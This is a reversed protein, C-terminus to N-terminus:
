RGSSRIAPRPREISARGAFGGAPPGSRHRAGPRPARPTPSRRETRQPTVRGAISPQANMSPCFPGDRLRREASASRRRCAPHDLTHGGRRHHRRAFWPPLSRSPMPPGALTRGSSATRRCAKPLRRSSRRVPVGREGVVRDRADGQKEPVAEQRQASDPQSKPTPRQLM